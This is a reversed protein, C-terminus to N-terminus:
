TPRVFLGSVNDHLSPLARFIFMVVMLLTSVIIFARWLNTRLSIPASFLSLKSSIYQDDDPPLDSMEIAFSDDDRQDIIDHRPMKSMYWSRLMTLIHAGNFLVLSIRSENEGAPLDTFEIEFENQSREDEFNDM